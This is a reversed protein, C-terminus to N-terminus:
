FVLIHVTKNVWSYNRDQFTKEILSHSYRENEGPPTVSNEQNRVLKLDTHLIIWSTVPSDYICTNQVVWFLVESNYSLVFPWIYRNTSVMWTEIIKIGSDNM